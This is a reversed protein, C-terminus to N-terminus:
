TVVMAACRPNGLAVTFSIYFQCFCEFQFKLRTVLLSLNFILIAIGLGSCLGKVWVWGVPGPCTKLLSLFGNLLMPATGGASTRSLLTLAWVLM